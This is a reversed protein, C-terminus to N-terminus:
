EAKGQGQVVHDDCAEEGARGGGGQGHDDEGTCLPRQIWGDVGQCSDDNDKDCQSNNTGAVEDCFSFFHLVVVFFLGKKEGCLFVQLM